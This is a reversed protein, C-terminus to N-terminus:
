IRFQSITQRMDRTLQQLSDAAQAANKAAHNSQEAVNAVIETQNAMNHSASSSESLSETILRVVEVVKESGSRIENIAEGAETALATGRQVQEVTNVMARVAEEARQQISGTVGAIETTAQTTREALKRVEDAVVAFGRGAEGARAAEIAANLALLNTQEAVEKIVSVIGSIKRTEEGLQSIAASTNEVTTAIQGMEATAALITKGGENSRMGADSSLRAADNANESIQSIGVSLEEVSAAMSSAADSAEGSNKANERSSQAMSQSAEDVRKVGTLLQSFTQRLNGLLGAVEEITVGVEDGGHVPPTVTFDKKQEVEACYRQLRALPQSVLRRVVLTVLLPLGILLVLGVILVIREVATVSRSLEAIDARTGIIWGFDEFRSLAALSETASSAGSRQWLYRLEGQGKELMERIIPRGRVDKVELGSKGELAPHIVFHGYEPDDSRANLVFVYGTEGLKVTKLREKLKLLAETFDVGIFLAGTVRNGEKIPVYKTFFDRGFLKAMGRYSEGAMLKSYAPHKQDLPTGVARSGDAKKLSTTVRVLDKGDLAFITAAAQTQATFRDIFAYDQNVARTGNYLTPVIREGLRVPTSEDLRFRDPFGLALAGLLRDATNELDRAFVDVSNVVQGNITASIDSATEEAYNGGIRAIVLAAILFTIFIAIALALVLKQGIRLKSFQM